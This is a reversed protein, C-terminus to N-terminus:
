KGELSKFLGKYKEIIAYLRQSEGLYKTGELPTLELKRKKAWDSFAPDKVVKFMADELIKVRDSPTKPPAIFGRIAPMTNMDYGLKNPFPVEPFVPDVGESYVLLPRVKGSAVMTQASDSSTIAFDLHRGALSALVEGSSEFPVWNAKMGLRDVSILGNFHSSSGLAPIGGSLIKERAIKLFDEMTKWTDPHVMLVM